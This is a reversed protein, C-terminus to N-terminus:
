INRQIGGISEIDQLLQDVTIERRFIYLIENWNESLGNTSTFSTFFPQENKVPNLLECLPKLINAQALLDSVACGPMFIDDHKKNIKEIIKELDDQKYSDAAVKRVLTITEDKTISVYYRFDIYGKDKVSETFYYDYSPHDVPKYKELIEKEKGFIRLLTCVISFSPNEIILKGANALLKNTM